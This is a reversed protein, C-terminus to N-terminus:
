AARAVRLRAGPLSITICTGVGVRSELAVQGGHGAALGRVIPLGLGTGRELTVADHRGQGFSEFVRAHDEEPIGVGTDQVGFVITDDFEVHAFITVRGGRPTFKVANGILNLLIQRLAREDAWLRLERPLELALELGGDRAKGQMLARCSVAIQCVDVDRENLATEGVEMKSLDLIDNVLNLLHSGSAHVLRSYEVRKGAFGDDTLLESFGLIANLPTRLEHSMNALFTSKALSSRKAEERATDAAIKETVAQDRANELNQILANGAAFATQWSRIAHTTRNSILVLLGALTGLGIWIAVAPAFAINNFTFLMGAALPPAAYAWFIRRSLVGMAFALLMGICCIVGLYAVQAVGGRFAIAAAPGILIVNRVFCLITLKGLAREQSAQSPLWKALLRQFVIDVGCWVILAGLALRPYGLLFLSTAAALNAGIVVRAQVVMSAATIQFPNGDILYKSPDFSARGVTDVM